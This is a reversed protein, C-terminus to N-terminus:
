FLHRRISQVRLLDTELNLRFPLIILFFSINQCCLYSYFTRSFFCIESPIIHIGLAFLSFFFCLNFLTKRKIVPKCKKRKPFLSFCIISYSMKFIYFILFFFGYRFVVVLLSTSFVFANSSVIM